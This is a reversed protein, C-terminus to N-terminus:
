QLMSDTAADIGQYLAQYSGVIRVAVSLMIILLIAKSTVGVLLDLRRDFQGTFRVAQRAMEEDLRGSTEGIQFARDVAEPFAHTRAVAVGLSEGEKVAAVAEAAGRKFLASGSAAASREMASFIGGGAKVSMGMLLCFRSAVMAIRLGGLGPLRQLMRDVTADVTARRVTMAVGMWILATAAYFIALFGVVGTFFAEPGSSLYVPIGLMLAAFHLIFFPYLAGTILRRRARMLSGYYEGLFGFAEDLRGSAEGGAIVECDLIPFVGPVAELSSRASGDGRALRMADAVGRVSATRATSLVDLSESLPRGSRLLESMEHFLQEKQQLSLRM